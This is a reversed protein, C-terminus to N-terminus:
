IWEEKICVFLAKRKQVEPSLFKKHMGDKKSIELHERLLPLYMQWSKQVPGGKKTGAAGARGKQSPFTSCSSYTWCSQHSMPGKPQKELVFWVGWNSTGMWKHGCGLLIGLKSMPLHDTAMLCFQQGGLGLDLGNASAPKLLLPSPVGQNGCSSIIAKNFIEHAPLSTFGMLDFVLHSAASGASPPVLCTPLREQQTPLM